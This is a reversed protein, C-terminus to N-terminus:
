IFLQFQIFKSRRAVTQPAPTLFHHGAGRCYNLVTSYFLSRSQPKSHSFSTLFRWHLLFLLTEWSQQFVWKQFSRNRMVFVGPQARWCCSAHGLLLLGTSFVPALSMAVAPYIGWWSKSWSLNLRTWPSFTGSLLLLVHKQFANELKIYLFVVM